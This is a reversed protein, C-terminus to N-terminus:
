QSGREQSADEYYRITLQKMTQYHEMKLRRSSSCGSVTTMPRTAEYVEPSGYNDASTCAADAWCILYQDIQSSGGLSIM